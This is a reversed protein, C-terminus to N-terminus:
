DYPAEAIRKKEKNDIQNKREARDQLYKEFNFPIAPQANAVLREHLIAEIEELELEESKRKMQAIEEETYNDRLLKIQEQTLGSQSLDTM